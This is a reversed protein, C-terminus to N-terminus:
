VSKFFSDLIDINKIKDTETSTLYTYIYEKRCNPEVCSFDYKDFSDQDINYAKKNFTRALNKIRLNFNKISNLGNTTIFITPKNALMAYSISNSSHIIVLDSNSVLENTRYKIIKRGKFETGCYESKPHAAVVVPMNFNKEVYDFFLNLSDQYRKGDPIKKIKFFNKFDPHYPFYNDCFVAYKEKFLSKSASQIFCDFDPHNIIHTRSSTASSSLHYNFDKIRYIRKYLLFLLSFCKDTIIRELEKSFLRKYKYSFPEKIATNAYLDIKVTVFNNVLKLVKRNHWQQFCEIWFITDSSDVLSILSELNEFSSIETVYSENISDAIVMDPYLLKSVSWVKINYGRDFLQPIYFIEKRRKTFPEHDIIIVNKM